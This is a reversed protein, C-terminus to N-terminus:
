LGAGRGNRPAVREDAPNDIMIIDSVRIGPDVAAAREAGRLFIGACILLLASATVQVVILTSRLRSALGFSAGRMLSLSPQGPRANHGAEGFRVSSRPAFAPRTARVAPVLGFLSASVAAAVVLFGAVRLDAPLPVADLRLFEALETPMTTSLFYRAADVVARSILLACSAAALALLLSETLM